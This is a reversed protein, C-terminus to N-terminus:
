ERFPKLDGGTGATTMAPGYAEAVQKANEAFSPM